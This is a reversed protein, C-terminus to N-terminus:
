LIYDRNLVLLWPFILCEKIYEAYRGLAENTVFDPGNARALPPISFWYGAVIIVLSVDNTM